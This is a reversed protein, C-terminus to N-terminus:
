NIHYFLKLKHITVWTRSFPDTKFVSLHPLERPPEFGEGDAMIAPYLLKTLEDPEYDSPRHNLDM